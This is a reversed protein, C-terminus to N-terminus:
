TINKLKVAATSLCETKNKNDPGHVPKSPLFLASGFGTLKVISPSFVDPVHLRKNESLQRNQLSCMM